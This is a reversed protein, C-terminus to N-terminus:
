DPIKEVVIGVERLLDIDEDTGNSITVERGYPEDFMSSVTTVLRGHPLALIMTDTVDELNEGSPHNVIRVKM